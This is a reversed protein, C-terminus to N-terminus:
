RPAQGLWQQVLAQLAGPDVCEAWYDDPSSCGGTVGNFSIMNEDVLYREIAQPQLDRLAWALGIMRDQPLDTWVYGRLAGTAANATDLLQLPNQQRLRETVAVIIQQQRRAREFDSDGHRIRAYQLARTGDFHQPGPEFYVEMYGYDMTPYAGDYLATPVDVDVGGISDILGIFGEFNILVAYDIHTGLLQGVTERTLAIGGGLEPYLDGYVHASNIRSYGYGPISVILDRPLSLLAVRHAQPDVHAIIVTDTRSTGSEGPRQDSGLLLINVASGP